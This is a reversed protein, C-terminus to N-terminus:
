LPTFYPVTFNDKHRRVMDHLLISAPLLSWGNTVETSYPPSRYGKWVKLAWSHLDPRQFSLFPLPLPTTLSRPFCPIPLLSHSYSHPPSYHSPLHSLPFPYILSSPHPQPSCFLSFTPFSLYFHSLPSSYSFSISSLFLFLLYHLLFLFIVIFFLLRFLRSYHFPFSPKKRIDEKQFSYARRNRHQIAGHSIKRGLFCQKM